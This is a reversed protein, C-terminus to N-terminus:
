AIFHIAEVPPYRGIRQLAEREFLREDANFELITATVQGIDTRPRIHIGDLQFHERWLDSRPHYFRTLQGTSTAISGLDSGKARNCFACALSLNEAHTLGGHKEAIIHDVHCGLYTDEAHILCYECLFYARLEVLRRLEASVYSTM